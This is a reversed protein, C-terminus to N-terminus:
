DSNDLEVEVFYKNENIDESRAITVIIHELISEKLLLEPQVFLFVGHERMAVRVGRIRPRVDELEAEPMGLTELVELARAATEQESLTALILDKKLKFSM